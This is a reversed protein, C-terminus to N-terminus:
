DRLAERNPEHQTHTHTHSLVLLQGFKTHINHNALSHPHAYRLHCDSKACLFGNGAAARVDIINCDCKSVCLIM